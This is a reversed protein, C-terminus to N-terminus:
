YKKKNKLARAGKQSKVKEIEELTPLQTLQDYSLGGVTFTKVFWLLAPQGREGAKFVALVALVLNILYVTGLGVFMLTLILTTEVCTQVAFLM